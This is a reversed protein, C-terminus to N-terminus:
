MCDSCVCLGQACTGCLAATEAVAQHVCVGAVCNDSTCPNADKCDGCSPGTAHCAWGKAPSLTAFRWVGVSQVALAAAGDKDVGWVANTMPGPDIPVVSEKVVLGAADLWWLALATANGSVRKTVLLLGGDPLREIGLADQAYPAAITTRWQMSWDAASHMEVVLAGM